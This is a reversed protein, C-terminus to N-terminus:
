CGTACLVVVLILIQIYLHYLISYEFYTCSYLIMCHVAHMSDHLKVCLVYIINYTVIPKPTAFM